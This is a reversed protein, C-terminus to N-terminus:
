VWEGFLVNNRIKSTSIVHSYPLYVVKGGCGDAIFKFPKGKNELSVFIIDYDWEYQEPAEIRIINCFPYLEQLLLVRMEYPVAPKHGKYFTILEDSM